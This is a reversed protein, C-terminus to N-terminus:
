KGVNKEEESVDRLANGNDNEVLSTGGELVRTIPMVEALATGPSAVDNDNKKNEANDEMNDEGNEEVIVQRTKGWGFSDINKVAYCLVIM